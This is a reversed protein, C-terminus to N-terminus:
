RVRAVRLNPENRFYDFGIAKIREEREKIKQNHIRKKKRKNKQFFNILLKNFLNKVWM